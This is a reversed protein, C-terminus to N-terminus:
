KSQQKFKWEDQIVELHERGWQDILSWDIREEIIPLDYFKNFRDIAGPTVRLIRAAEERTLFPGKM